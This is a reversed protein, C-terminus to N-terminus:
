PWSRKEKPQVSDESNKANESLNTVKGGPNTPNKSIDREEGSNEGSFNSWGSQPWKAQDSKNPIGTIGPTAQESSTEPNPIRPHGLNSQPPKNVTGPFRPTPQEQPTATNAVARMGANGLGSKQMQQFADREQVHSSSNNGAGNELLFIKKKLKEITENLGDIKKTYEDIKAQADQDIKKKYAIIKEKEGDLKDQETKLSNRSEDLKAKETEYKQWETRLLDLDHIIQGLKEDKQREERLVALSQEFGKLQASLNDILKQKDAIIKDNTQLTGNQEEIKAQLNKNENLLKENEGKLTLVENNLEQGIAFMHRLIEKLQALREYIDPMKVEM